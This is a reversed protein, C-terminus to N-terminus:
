SIVKVRNLRMYSESVRLLLRKHGIIVKVSVIGTIKWHLATYDYKETMLFALYKPYQLLPLLNIAM